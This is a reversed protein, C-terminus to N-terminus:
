IVWIRFATTQPPISMTMFDAHEVRVMQGPRLNRLRIRNGRRDFIDTSNDVVFRMQSMIDNQNGTILFNYNRDVEMIRDEVINPFVPLPNVNERVVRIMFARSQPPISRTMATSFSADVVNGVNLDRISIRRGRRNRIITNGDVVLRVLEMNITNFDGLVGYSITVFSTRNEHFIEEIVADEVRIAMNRRILENVNFDDM